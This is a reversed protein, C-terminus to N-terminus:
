YVTDSDRAKLEAQVKDLKISLNKFNQEDGDKVYSIDELLREKQTELEKIVKFFQFHKM